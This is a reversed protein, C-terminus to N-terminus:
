SNNIRLVSLWQQIDPNKLVEPNVIFQPSEDALLKNVDNILLFPSKNLADATTGAIHSTLTVNDLKNWRSNAPLPETWFVDLAAGAIQHFSLAQFLAEENILGARATNIIIATPKMLKLEEYAVINKSEETLRAHLSIFDATEFLEDKSVKKAQYKTIDQESCFPDCVLIQLNFGSLKKAVLRGIYGFGILGVTKGNMEPTFSSNVFSKKWEGGLLAQHARAINRIETLMMGVTFDSVAQANRGMLHHVIIGHNTAADVDINELGARAAGILRLNPLLRIAAKSVPAFLVFLMETEKKAHVIEPLVPECSSGQQEILLRRKQLNDWNSEWDRVETTMKKIILEGCAKEFQTGPIMTDGICLIHM